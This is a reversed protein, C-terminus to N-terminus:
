DEPALLFSLLPVRLRCLFSNDVVCEKVLTVLGPSFGFQLLVDFLFNWNLRDYANEMDLNLIVNGGKQGSDLHQILEQTLSVNEHILRSSVIAGQEPSILKPLLKAMRNALIKAIFKYCVNCLSIPKFESFNSPKEKKPVLALFTAKWGRSLKDGTFFAQVALVVDMHVIEWCAIFFVATIGDPGPASDAAMSFVVNKMEEADPIECMLKNDELSIPSPIVQLLDRDNVCGEEKLLNRFFEKGKDKVLDGSNQLNQDITSFCNSRRREQLTSHFYKSNKDGVSLWNIRSKQKLFIEYQKESDFFEKRIETLRKWADECWGQQLSEEVTHM